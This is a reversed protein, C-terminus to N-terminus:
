KRKYNNWREMFEDFNDTDPRFGKVASTGKNVQSPPEPAKTTKIAPTKPKTESNASFRADLRGLALTAAVPGSNAIQKAEEINSALYYLIDTGNEMSMITSALYDGYSPELDAFEIQITAAKEEFDAYKEAKAKELRDNWDQVLAQQAQEKETLEKQKAKDAELRAQEQKQEEVLVNFNYRTLDRIYDPDIEGLPYKEKGNEDVAEPDPPTLKTAPEPKTETTPQKEPTPTLKAELERIKNALADREREAERRKATIEDIREQLTQKKPKETPKDEPTSETNDAQEDTKDATDEPAPTDDNTGSDVKDEVDSTEVKVTPTLTEFSAFFDTQTDPTITTDTM